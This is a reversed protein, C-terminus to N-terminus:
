DSLVAARRLCASPAAPMRQTPLRWLAPQSRRRQAAPPGPRAHPGSRAPQPLDAWGAPESALSLGFEPSTTVGFLCFGANASAAPSIRILNQQGSKRLSPVRGNGALRRFARGSGEGADARRCVAPCRFRARSRLATRSGDAEASAMGVAEDLHAITGLTKHDGASALSAQMAEVSTLSGNRIAQALDTADRRM